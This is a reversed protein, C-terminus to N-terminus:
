GERPESRALTGARLVRWGGPIARSAPAEDPDQVRGALYVGVLLWYLYSASYAFPVASVGNIVLAISAVALLREHAGAGRILGIGRFFALLLALLFYFSGQELVAIFQNDPPLNIVMQPSGLSGFPHQALYAYAADWYETRGQFNADAAAGQSLVKAGSAYRDIAREVLTVGKLPKLLSEATGPIALTVIPLACVVVLLTAKLRQERNAWLFMWLLGYVAASALLAALTGRSQSLLVTAFSAAVGIARQRGKLLFFSTWLALLAWIGLSNPNLYFGTARGQIINDPQYLVKFRFDWNDIFSLFGPLYRLQGLTQILSMVLQALVAFLFYGRLAKAAEPLRAVGAGACGLALFTFPVLGNWSAFLTRIPFAVLIVGLVPLLFTLGLFPLWYTVFTRTWLARKVEARFPIVVLFLSVWPECLNMIPIVGQGGTNLSVLLRESFIAQALALIMVVHLRIM